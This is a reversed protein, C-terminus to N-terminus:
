AHFLIGCSCSRAVDSLTRLLNFATISHLPPWKSYFKKSKILTKLYYMWTFM